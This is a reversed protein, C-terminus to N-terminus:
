ARSLRIIHYSLDLTHAIQHHQKCLPAMQKPDHVQALGLRQSHHTDDTPNHCTAISCKNGHEKKQINQVAVSVYRSPKKPAPQKEAKQWAIDSLHQKETEIEETRKQLFERLLQNIDIGKKQLKLLENEIDEELALGHGPVSQTGFIPKPSSNQNKSNADDGGGTGSKNEFIDAQSKEVLGKLALQEDRVFVELASKSLLRAHTALIEENEKTAISAVRILKNMSVEGNEFLSKLIPKDEFKRELNLARLVQERSLGAFKEGFECISSCGKKEYLKRRNVEPLLGIFRQRALLTQKGYNLALELIKEDSIKVINTESMNNLPCRTSPIHM